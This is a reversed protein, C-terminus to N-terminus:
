EKRQILVLDILYSGRWSDGPLPTVCCSFPGILNLLKQLTLSIGHQVLDASLSLQYTKEKRGGM